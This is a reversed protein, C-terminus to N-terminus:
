NRRSFLAILCWFAVASYFVIDIMLQFDPDM